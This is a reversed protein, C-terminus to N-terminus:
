TTENQELGDAFLLILDSRIKARNGIIETQRLGALESNGSDKAQGGKLNLMYIFGRLLLKSGLLFDKACGTERLWLRCSVGITSGQQFNLAGSCYPVSM